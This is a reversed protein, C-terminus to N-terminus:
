LISKNITAPKIKLDKEIRKSQKYFEYIMFSLPNLVTKRFIKLVLGEKQPKKTMGCIKELEAFLLLSASGEEKSPCLFKTTYLKEFDHRQNETKLLKTIKEFHDKFNHSVRLIGKNNNVLYDFHVTETQSEKYRPDLITFSPKEFIAGEWFASTNIGILAACYFISHLYDSRLDGYVPFEVSKPFFVVNPDSISREVELWDKKRTPHPRVIVQLQKITEDPHNNKANLWDYFFASEKAHTRQFVASGVYLVFPSTIKLGTKSFFDKKSEIPKFDFIDDFSPTGCIFIRNCDIKHLEIAENKQIENWVVIRDPHHRVWSKSSLNDWSNVIFISPIGLRQAARLQDFQSLATDTLPSFAVLDPKIEKFFSYTKGEPPLSKEILRLIFCAISVIISNKWLGWELYKQLFFPGKIREYLITYKRFFKRRFHFFDVLRNFFMNTVSWRNQKRKIEYYKLNPYKLTLDNLRKLAGSLGTEIAAADDGYVAIYVEHNKKLLNEITSAHLRFYWMNRLCYVIRSM